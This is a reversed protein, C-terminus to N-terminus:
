GASWLSDLPRRSAADRGHLAIPLAGMLAAMTTMMIPRFREMSADHIQDDPVQMLLRATACLGRDHNRKEECYASMFMGIFAYLPLRAGFLWLTM